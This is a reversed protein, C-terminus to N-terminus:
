GPMYDGLIFIVTGAEKAAKSSPELHHPNICYPRKAAHPMEEEDGGTEETQFMPTVDQVKLSPGIGLSILLTICKHLKEPHLAV